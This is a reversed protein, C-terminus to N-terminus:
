CYRTLAHMLLTKSQHNQNDAHLRAVVRSCFCGQPKPTDDVNCLPFLACVAVRCDTQDTGMIKEYIM